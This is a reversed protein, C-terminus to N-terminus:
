RAGGTIVRLGSTQRRREERVEDIFRELGHLFTEIETDYDAAYVEVLRKRDFTLIQIAKAAMAGWNARFRTATGEMAADLSADLKAIEADKQAEAEREEIRQQIQAAVEPPLPDATPKPAPTPRAAPYSKGDAGTVKAPEAEPPSSTGVQSLDNRVTKADVGTAGAIQRTSMGQSRLDAVAERREVTPLAALLEGFELTVYAHWSPHGLARWDQQAYADAIDQRMATYTPLAARIRDRRATATAADAPAPEVPYTYRVIDAPSSGLLDPASM